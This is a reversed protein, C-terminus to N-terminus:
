ITPTTSTLSAPDAFASTDVWYDQFNNPNVYVTIEKKETLFPTPDFPLTFSKFTYLVNTTHHRAQATIQYYYVDLIKTGTPSVDTVQALIPQGHALLREIKQQERRMKIMPWVSILLILLGVVIFISPFVYMEFTSKIVAQNPSLPNFLVEVTKGVMPQFSSSYMSTFQYTRGDSTQFEVRPAYTTGDKSRGESVGTIRGTTHEYSQTHQVTKWLLFGGGGLFPLSFLVFLLFTKLMFTKM